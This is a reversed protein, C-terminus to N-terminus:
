TLLLLTHKKGARLLAQSAQRRQHGDTSANRTGNYPRQESPRIVKRDFAGSPESAANGGNYLRKSSGAFDVGGVSAGMVDLSAGMVDLSTVLEAPTSTDM